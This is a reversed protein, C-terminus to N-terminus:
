HNSPWDICNQKLKQGYRLVVWKGLNLVKKKRERTEWGGTREMKIKKRKQKGRKRKSRWVKEEENIKEWERGGGGKQNTM